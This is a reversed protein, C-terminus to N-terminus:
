PPPIIDGLIQTDGGMMSPALDCIPPSTKGLAQGGGHHPPVALFKSKKALNQSKSSQGGGDHPPVSFKRIKEFTTGGGM